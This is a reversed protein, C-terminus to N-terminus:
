GDGNEDVGSSGSNVLLAMDIVRDQRRTPM